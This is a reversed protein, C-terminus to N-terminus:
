ISMTLDLTSMGLAAKDRRDRVVESGNGELAKEQGGAMSSASSPTLTLSLLSAAADEHDEQGKELNLIPDAMASTRRKKADSPDVELRFASQSEPERTPYQASPSNTFPTGIGTPVVGKEWRCDQQRNTVFVLPPSNLSCGLPFHHDYIHQIILGQLQEQPRHHLGDGIRHRNSQHHISRSDDFGSPRLSSTTRPYFMEHLRQTRLLLDMPQMASSITSKERGLGDQKKSRYMQLHSKVHAISLGRVNMLQLVLKPTAREQGGLRDVAHVFALHLDSTWRLRPLKSRVYQRVKTGRESSGEREDEEEIDDESRVDENLDFAERPRKQSKDEEM